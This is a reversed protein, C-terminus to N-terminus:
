RYETVIRKSEIWVIDFLSPGFLSNGIKQLANSFIALFYTPNIQPMKCSYFQLFFDDFDTFYLNKHLAPPPIKAGCCRNSLCFPAGRYETYRCVAYLAQLVWCLLMEGNIISFAMISFTMISFTTDGLISSVFSLSRFEYSRPLQTTGTAGQPTPHPPPPPHPPTLNDPKCFAEFSSPM